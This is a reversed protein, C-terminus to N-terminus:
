ALAYVVTVSVTLQQTGPSIPVSSAKGAAASYDVPVPSSAQTQDSISVVPGLPQDLAQAYQAAKARADAVARARATALLGSTNTLNLTIGDVTTANGGAHVAAEIQSGAAGISDLTATLSESAGYGSPIQSSSTYNPQIYLGSTQIDSAAVGRARLASTVEDVAQSAQQLASDVSSGNVQVGMDLILQNPTGSVMGTGTVTIRAGSAASTLQAGLGAPVDAAQRSAGSSAGGLSTGLAYAGILLAAAATGAAAARIPVTFTIAMIWSGTEPNKGSRRAAATGPEAMRCSQHNAPFIAAPLSCDLEPPRSAAARPQGEHGGLQLTDHQIASIGAFQGPEVLRQQATHQILRIWPPREIVAPRRQVEIPPHHQGELVHLVIARRLPRVGRARLLKVKVDPDRVQVSGLFIDEPLACSQKISTVSPPAPADECIGGPMREAQNPIL